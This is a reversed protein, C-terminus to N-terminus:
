FLFDRGDSLEYWGRLYMSFMKDAGPSALNQRMLEFLSANKVLTLVRYMRKDQVSRLSGHPLARSEEEARARTPYILEVAVPQLYYSPTTKLTKTQKYIERVASPGRRALTRTEVYQLTAM